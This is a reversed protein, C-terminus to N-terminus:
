HSACRDSTQRVIVRGPPTTEERIVCFPPDDDADPAPRDARQDLAPPSNGRLVFLPWRRCTSVSISHPLKQLSRHNVSPVSPPTCGATVDPRNGTVRRFGFSPVARTPRPSGNREKESPIRVPETQWFESSQGRLGCARGAAEML